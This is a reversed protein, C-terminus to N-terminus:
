EHLYPTVLDTWEKSSQCTKGDVECRTPKEEKVEQIYVGIADNENVDVLQHYIYSSAGSHTESWLL